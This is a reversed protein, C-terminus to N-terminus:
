PRNATKPAGYLRCYLEDHCLPREGSALLSVEFGILFRHSWRMPNNTCPDEDMYDLVPPWACQPTSM